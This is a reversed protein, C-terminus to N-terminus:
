AFTHSDDEGAAVDVECLEAGPEGLGEDQRGSGADQRECRADRETDRPRDTKARNLPV